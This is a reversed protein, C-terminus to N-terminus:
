KKFGNVESIDNYPKGPLLDMQLASSEPSMLDMGPDPLEGPSPLPLDSWLEQRSLPAQRAVTWLVAFLQVHSPM